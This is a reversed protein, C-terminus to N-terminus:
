IKTIGVKHGVKKHAKAQHSFNTAGKSKSEERGVKGEDQEMGSAGSFVEWLSQQRAKPLHKGLNNEKNNSEDRM